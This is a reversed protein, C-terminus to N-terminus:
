RPLNPLYFLTFDVERVRLKKRIQGQTVYSHLTLLSNLSLSDNIDFIFTM